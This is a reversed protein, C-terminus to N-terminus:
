GKSLSRASGESIISIAYEEGEVISVYGGSRGKLWGGEGEGNSWVHRDM